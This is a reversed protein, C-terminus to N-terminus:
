PGCEMDNHKLQPIHISHLNSLATWRPTNKNQLHQMKMCNCTQQALPSNIVTLPQHKKLFGAVNNFNGRKDFSEELLQCRHMTVLLQILDM